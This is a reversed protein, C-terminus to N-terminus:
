ASINWRQREHASHCSAVPDQRSIQCGCTVQWMCLLRAVVMTSEQGSRSVALVLVTSKNCANQLIGKGEVETSMYADMLVHCAFVLSIQSCLM